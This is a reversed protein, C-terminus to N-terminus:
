DSLCLLERMEQPPMPAFIQEYIFPKIPGYQELSVRGLSKLCARPSDVRDSIHRVRYRCGALSGKMRHADRLIVAMTRNAAFINQYSRPVPLDCFESVATHIVSFLAVFHAPNRQECAPCVRGLQRLCTFWVPRGDVRVRHEHHCFPAEDIITIIKENGPLVNVRYPQDTIPQHVFDDLGSFGRRFWTSLGEGQRSPCQIKTSGM